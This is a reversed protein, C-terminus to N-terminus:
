ISKQFTKFKKAANRLRWSCGKFKSQMFCKGPEWTLCDANKDQSINLKEIMQLVFSFNNKDHNWKKEVHILFGMKVINHKSM